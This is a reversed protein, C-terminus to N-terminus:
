KSTLSAAEHLMEVIRCSQIERQFEVIGRAGGNCALVIADASLERIESTSHRLLVAICPTAGVGCALSILRALQAAQCGYKLLLSLVDAHHFSVAVRAADFVDCPRNTLLTECMLVDAMRAALLLAHAVDLSSHLALLNQASCVDGALM